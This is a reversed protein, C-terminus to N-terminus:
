RGWADGLNRLGGFATGRCENSVLYHKAKGLTDRDIARCFARGYFVALCNHWATGALFGIALLRNYVALRCVM